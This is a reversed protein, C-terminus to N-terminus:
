TGEWVMVYWMLFKCVGFCDGDMQDTVTGNLQLVGLNMRKEKLSAGWMSQYILVELFLM